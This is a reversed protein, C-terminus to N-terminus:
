IPPKGPTADRHSEPPAGRKNQKDHEEQIRNVWWKRDEANMQNQEFLSLGGHHKLAFSQGM